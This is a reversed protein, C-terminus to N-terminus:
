SDRGHWEPAPPRRGAIYRGYADAANGTLGSVGDGFQDSRQAGSMIKRHAQKFAGHLRTVIASDMGQPGVLGRRSTQTPPIGVEDLTPVGPFSEVRKSGWPVLLRMKGDKVFPAWEFTEAASEIQSATFAQM